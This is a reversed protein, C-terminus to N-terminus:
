SRPSRPLTPFICVSYMCDIATVAIRM